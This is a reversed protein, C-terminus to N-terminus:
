KSGRSPTNQFDLVFRAGNAFRPEVRPDPDTVLRIDGSLLHMIEKSIYLGLGTGGAKMSFFPEFLHAMAEEHIGPGNDLILVQRENQDLIIQLFKGGNASNGALWHCANNVLNDIVQVVWAQRGRIQFDNGIVAAQIGYEDILRKNITLALEATERMSILTLRPLRDTVEYPALIRFESRLTTLCTDLLNVADLSRSGGPAFRRLQSLAENAAKVQRGFEHVVREAALGTAALTLLREIRNDKERDSGAAGELNEILIELAQRQTITTSVDDTRTSGTGETGRDLDPAITVQVQIQDSATEKIASAVKQAVELSGRHRTSQERAPPRDKKWYTTFLRIAARTLARLDRFAANEILGERNTTDRLQLNNAQLVEILGIVQNNGIKGSPDQIREQDLFLWDNGPEGYPLVRLHDRFLSIGCQADLEKASVHSQSLYDRTRDWVYLNIWFSGCAPKPGHMEKAALPILDTSDSKTRAAVAPHNCKYEFDCRGEEDILARFEYHARELIDTSDLNEFEPYDPCTLIITFNARDDQRLPSQLRRLTRHVKELLARTWQCRARRIKILTGTSNGTFVQPEREQVSLDVADLYREGTEFDDWNIPLFVELTGGSRTVLELSRGIQHVAFRGVGKEGIPLRGLPTRRRERKAREKHDVAPSLWKDEIDQITMGTGNDRVIVTTTDPNSLGLIEVIVETADADYANKVLEILGVAQDSILHEGLVTVLRARPRFSLTRRSAPTSPRSPPAESKTKM